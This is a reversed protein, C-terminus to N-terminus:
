LAGCQVPWRAFGWGSFLESSLLLDAVRAARDRDVIGAWLAHGMNSALADVPRKDRDLAMTYWGLEDIWFQDEFRERLATAERQCEVARQSEDFRVALEARDLWARYVYAQVECLAVPPEALAGHAFSIADWSDKWGQNRLGKPARRAYEVLGDGDRDGFQQIWDLARDVHPLLSRIVTSDIGWRAAEAVLMVFLPTADASGYYVSGAGPELLSSRGFRVEHLIRGPEEDTRDDVRVGQLGALAQLTDIASEPQVLLAMWSTLLSDRGFLTMFWPAGAVFVPRTGYREDRVRLSSLDVLTNDFLSQMAGEGSYRVRRAPWPEDSSTVPSRPRAVFDSRRESEVSVALNSRWEGRGPVVAAFHLGQDGVTFSESFRLVVRIERDRTVFEAEHRGPGVTASPGPETPRGEKVDFLTAFDVEVRLAVDCTVPEPTPNRLVVSERLTPDLQRHRLVLLRTSGDLHRASRGVVLVSGPSQAVTALIEPAHGDVLLELGSLHRVDEVFLGQAEGPCIDGSASSVCFTSGSVLTSRTRIEGLSASEGNFSWGSDM